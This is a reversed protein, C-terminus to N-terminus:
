EAQSSKGRWRLLPSLVLVSTGLCLALGISMVIGLSRVGRHEAIVMSLFGIVTTTTSLLIARFTGSTLGSPTGDPELRWRHVLHVGLDVGIGFMLPMVIINAFNLPIDTLRMVGFLMVFALSVPLLACLADALSRFDIMLLVFIAGIALLAALWYARLILRSSEYIQIPPGCAAPAIERLAAVFAALRDPDLVSTGGPDPVPDVFIIADGDTTRWRAELAAPLDALSPPPAAGIAQVTLNAISRTATGAAPAAHPAASDDTAAAAYAALSSVAARRMALDAPIIEAAGRIRGLGGAARLARVMAPLEAEDVVVLGAWASAGDEALLRREWEASEIGHPQLNLVDADYRVGPAAVALLLCPAAAFMVARRPQHHLAALRALMRDTRTTRRPPLVDPWRKTWALLAPLVLLVAVFCLMIGGAAIVGMEAMGRFDTFATMSFAAATTVAGTFLGPGVTRFSRAMAPELAESRIASSELSSLLHIAFDIGLGLLILTFVVSLLQLHGIALVVWGFSWAIGVLLALASFLPALVSRLAALLLVAIVSFAVISSVTSDKMSQATEDAEIAPIGTIGWDAVAGPTSLTPLTHEIARRLATLAAAAAGVGDHKEQDIQVFLLRYRGGGAGFAQFGGRPFLASLDADERDITALADQAAAVFAKRWEPPWAREPDVQALLPPESAEGLDRPALAQRLASRDPAAACAATVGLTALSRAFSEEDGVYFLSPSAASADFGADVAAIGEVHALRTALEEAARDVVPADAAGELVVIFDNWRPARARYQAYLANWPLDDDILENRDSRFELNTTCALVSAAALLLCLMLTLRPRRVAGRAWAGLLRDRLLEHM